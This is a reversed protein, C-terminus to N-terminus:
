GWGKPLSDSLFEYLGKFERGRSPRQLRSLAPGARTSRGWDGMAATAFGPEDLRILDPWHHAVGTAGRLKGELCYVNALTAKEWLTREARM